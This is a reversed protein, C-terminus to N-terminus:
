PRSKTWIADGHITWNRMGGVVWSCGQYENAGGEQCCVTCCQERDGSKGEAGYAQCAKGSARRCGVDYFQRQSVPLDEWALVGTGSASYCLQCCEAISLSVSAQASFSSHNTTLRLCWIVMECVM